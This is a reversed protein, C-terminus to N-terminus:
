TGASPGPPGFFAERMIGLDIFNVAGDGNFDSDADDSFFALRLLGLDLFNVVGDNNLDADCANGFGDGNTDRQDANAVLTCNDIGDAIGDGDTDSEGALALANDVSFTGRGMTGVILKDLAADYDFEYIPTNPLDSGFSSWSMFGTLSTSVYVGRNGGVFLADFSPGNILQLARLRNIAQVDLDGTITAFSSGGDISRFVNSRDIYILHSANNADLAIDEIPGSSPLDALPTMPDGAVDRRFIQDFAGVFLADENDIAGYGVAQAGLQNIVIGPGIEAITDVRDFSEYVGEAGGLIVRESNIQNIVVPTKFQGGFPRGSIVTLNPFEVDIFNNNVDHTRRRFSFLFQFSSYRSSLGFEGLTANDVAVDGGDGNQLAQWLVDGTFIQQSTGTDQNGTLVISSLSDYATDHAETVQLNSNLSFWDGGFSRPDTRKYIGGDDTEILEGAANFTMDRSDAHPASSSATGSHTLAAWQSGATASADGRFLRGSFDVAGLANPFGGDDTLPQRDGGVYVINSDTPDVALSFHISGQGGAHVGVFSPELTGPLEMGTWTAGDDRSYFVGALRGNQTSAVFVTGDQGYEIETLGTNDNM